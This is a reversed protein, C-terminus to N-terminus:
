WCGVPTGATDAVIRIYAHHIDWVICNGFINFINMTNIIAKPFFLVIIHNRLLPMQILIDSTLNNSWKGFILGSDVKIPQSM